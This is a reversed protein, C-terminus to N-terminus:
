LQRPGPGDFVTATPVITYGASSVALGGVESGASAQPAHVHGGNPDTSATLAAPAGTQAGATPSTPNLLRGLTFGAILALVLGGVFVGLKIGGAGASPSGPTGSPRSSELSM